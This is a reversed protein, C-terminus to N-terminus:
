CAGLLGLPFNINKESSTDGLDKFLNSLEQLYDNM